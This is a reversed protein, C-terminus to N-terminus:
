CNLPEGGVEQLPLVGLFCPPERELPLYVWDNLPIVIRLSPNVEGFPLVGVRPNVRM